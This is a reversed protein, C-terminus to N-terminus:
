DDRLCYCLHLLRDSDSYGYSTPLAQPPHPPHVATPRSHLSRLIQHYFVAENQDVFNHLLTQVTASSRGKSASARRSM